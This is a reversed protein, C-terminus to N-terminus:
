FWEVAVQLHGQHDECLGIFRETQPAAKIDNAAKFEAEAGAYDGAKYKRDGEGYHKKAAALDAKSAPPAPRPQAWASPVQALGRRGVMSGAFTKSGLGM